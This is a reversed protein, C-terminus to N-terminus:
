AGEKKEAPKEVLQEKLEKLDNLIAVARTKQAESEKVHEKARHLLLDIKQGLVVKDM